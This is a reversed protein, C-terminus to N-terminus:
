HEQGPAHTHPQLVFEDSVAKQAGTEFALSALSSFTKGMLATADEGTTGPFIFYDTKGDALHAVGGEDKNEALDRPALTLKRGALDVLTLTPRSEAPLLFPEKFARDKGLWVEVDGKDDHLKVEAYGSLAPAGDSKWAVIIGDHPTKEHAHAPAKAADSSTTPTVPVKAREDKGNERIRVVVQAAPASGAPVAAHFHLQGNEIVAKSPATLSNGAADEVWVYVGASKWDRGAPSTVARAEIASEKGAALTGVLTLELEWGGASVRGISSRSGHDQPAVPSKGEDASPATKEAEAAKPSSTPPSSKGCGSLSLAVVCAPVMFRSLM